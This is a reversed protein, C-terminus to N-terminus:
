FALTINASHLIENTSRQDSLYRSFKKTGKDHLFSNYTGKNM